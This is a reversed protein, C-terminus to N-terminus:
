EVSQPLRSLLESYIRQTSESDKAGIVLVNDGSHIVICSSKIGYTYRIYTGFEDNSFYGLLQRPSGFGNIREGDVGNERYEISDIKDYDVEMDNWYTAEISFSSENLSIEINGSFCIFFCFAIVVAVAILSIYKTIREKKSIPRKQTEKDIEGNKLQKKYFMYSYLAPLVCMVIIFSLLVAIFAESPLFVSVLLLIGGAFWVKGAFRHTANWNEENNLTWKIKIGLTRNQRIKPMYNGIIIFALGLLLSTISRIEVGMGFASAYIVASVYVSISPIIWFIINMAKKNQERGKHDLATALICLWYIALLIIPM